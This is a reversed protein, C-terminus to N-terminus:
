NMDRWRAVVAGTRTWMFVIRLVIEAEKRGTPFNERKECSFDQRLKAKYRRAKWGRSAAFQWTGDSRTLKDQDPKGPSGLSRGVM